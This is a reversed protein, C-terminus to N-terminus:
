DSIKNSTVHFLAMVNLMTLKDHLSLAQYEVHCNVVKMVM